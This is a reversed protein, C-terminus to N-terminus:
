RKKACVFQAARVVGEAWAAPSYAAIKGKSNSAMTLRLGSDGALRAMAMALQAPDSPPLVFGNWGDQVLDEACGAVESIIVPLSCALAENVVLGWPDSHTPFILADALAYYEPLEERHVFGSFQITGPAIRAAAEQMKELEAGDGVFVLGIQRRMEPDLQAYADLLELVGKAKVLRGVYLFYRSPLSRRARVHSEDRRADAALKSFLDNDVANPATFIKEGAVGLAQLYRFSSKGSVVCAQCMRLFRAKMFEVPVHGARQDLATSETWLLLPVGHAKAWLAAEWSALYNYGGCLVADPSFRNLASFVGQNVLLNYRGLRQRWSPLVSYHFKIEDKYVRWQRLSPDNESLFIVHLDIEPRAAGANFVPIRYPAIIETILALKLM